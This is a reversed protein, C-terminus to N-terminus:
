RRRDSWREVDALLERAERESGCGVQLYLGEPPLDAILGEIESPSVSLHVAKGAEIIRRLLPRWKPHAQVDEGSGPVWQIARLNPLTLLTEVHQLAGPGDLHYIVGDMHSTQWSLAPFIFEDFMAKSVMCSFDCQSTTTRGPHYVRLWTSTGPMYQNVMGTVREYVELMLRAIRDRVEVMRERPGEILDVCLREPGRLASMVDGVDALEGVAVFWKGDATELFAEILRKKARWWENDPDLRPEYTWWDEVFPEHWVTTPHCVPRTGLLGAQAIAGMNVWEVPCAEAFWATNRVSREMRPIVYDPNTWYDWLTPPEPIAEWEAGDRPATLSMAPRGLGEGSWWRDLREVAEDWDPRYSLRM